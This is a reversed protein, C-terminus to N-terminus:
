VGQSVLENSFTPVSPWDATRIVTGDDLVFLGHLRRSALFRGGQEIGLLLATKAYVDAEMATPAIVSVSLVGNGASTGNRPDILHNHWRGGRQWRRNATTSTAIAEGHLEVLDLDTGGRPDSVGIYWGAGEPGRGSVAIDGGADVLFDRLPRLAVAARDVAYGKGIGGVDIRVGAPAQATSRARDIRLDAISSRARARADGAGDPVLQEFSRDYGAAELVPLIAPDFVGGTARHFRISADLLHLMEPSVAVESGARANLRSLESDPRFRSFRTEIDHFIQEGARLSPYNWSTTLFQVGTNMARFRHSMMLTDISISTRNATDVGTRATSTRPM